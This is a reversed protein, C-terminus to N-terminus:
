LCFLCCCNFLLLVTMFNGVEPRVNSSPMADLIKILQPEFNLDIM